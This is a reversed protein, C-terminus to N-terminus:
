INIVIKNYFLKYKRPKRELEDNDNESTFPMGYYISLIILGDM